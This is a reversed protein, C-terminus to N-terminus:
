RNLAMHTTEYPVLLKTLRLSSIHLLHLFILCFVHTSEPPDERPFSPLFVFLIKLVAAREELFSCGGFGPLLTGPTCMSSTTKCFNMLSITSSLLLFFTSEFHTYKYAAAAPTVDSVPASLVPFSLIVYAPDELHIQQLFLLVM